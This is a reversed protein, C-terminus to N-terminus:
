ADDRFRWGDRTKVLMAPPLPMPTLSDDPFRRRHVMLTSDNVWSTKVLSWHEPEVEWELVLSDGSVQYIRLRHPDYGAGIDWSATALRGRDPSVAPPADIKTQRATRRSVLLFEGGERYHLEVLYADLEEIVRIFSHGVSEASSAFSDALVVISGDQIPLMLRSEVRNVGPYSRFQTAEIARSCEFWNLITACFQKRHAEIEDDSSFERLYTSDPQWAALFARDGDMAPAPSCAFAFVVSSICLLM